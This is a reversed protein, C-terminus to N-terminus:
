VVTQRTRVDAYIDRERERIYTVYSPSRWTVFGDDGSCLQRKRKTRNVSWLQRERELATAGAVCLFVISLLLQQDQNGSCYSVLWIFCYNRYM